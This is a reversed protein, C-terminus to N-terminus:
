GFLSWNHENQTRTGIRLTIHLSQNLFLANAHAFEVKQGQTLSHFFRRLCENLPSRNASVPDHELIAM